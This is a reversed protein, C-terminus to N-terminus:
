LRRGDRLDAVAAMSFLAAGEQPNMRGRHHVADVAVRRVTTHVLVHQGDTLRQKALATMNRRPMRARRLLRGRNVYDILRAGVAVRLDM